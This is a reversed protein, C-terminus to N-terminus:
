GFVFSMVLIDSFVVTLSQKCLNFAFTFNDMIKNISYLKEFHQSHDYPSIAKANNKLTFTLHSCVRLRSIKIRDSLHYVRAISQIITVNHLNKNCTHLNQYSAFSLLFYRPKVHSFM